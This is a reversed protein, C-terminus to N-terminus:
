SPFTGSTVYVFTGTIAGAKESALFAATAAVEALKPSRRTMRMADLSEILGQFAAEDQFKSDVAALKGQSFTEPLGATWIGV